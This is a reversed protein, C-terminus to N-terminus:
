DEFVRRFTSNDLLPRIENNLLSAIDFSIEGNSNYFGINVEKRVGNTNPLEVSAHNPGDIRADFNFDLKDKAYETYAAKYTESYQGSVYKEDINSIVVTREGIKVFSNDKELVIDQQYKGIYKQPVINNNPSIEFQREVKKGTLNPKSVVTSNIDYFRVLIELTLDHTTGKDDKASIIGSGFIRELIGEKNVTAKGTVNKIFIDGKIKPFSDGLDISLSPMYHKVAFSSVANILSPIQADDLSGSFEKSGDPNENVIVYDKLNGIGADIIKEIDKMKDDEFIDEFQSYKREEAYEYIQYSDNWSNYWIACKQDSYSERIEKSGTCNEEVTSQSLSNAINDYKCTKTATLLVKDNDKITVSYQNTFSKLDKNCSKSTYKISQKLQEYGSMSTIDAFATSVLLAAGLTFSLAMILKKNKRM